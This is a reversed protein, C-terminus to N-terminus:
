AGAEVTITVDASYTVDGIGNSTDVQILSVWEKQVRETENLPNKDITAFENAVEIINGPSIDEKEFVQEGYLGNVKEMLRMSYPIYAMSYPIYADYEDNTMASLSIGLTYSKTRENTTFIIRFAEQQGPVDDLEIGTEPVPNGEADTVELTTSPTYLEVVFEYNHAEIASYSYEAAGLLQLNLIILLIRLLLSRM